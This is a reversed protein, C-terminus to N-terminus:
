KIGLASKTWLIAQGPETQVSVEFGKSILEAAVAVQEQSLQKGAQKFEVFVTKGESFISFDPWGVRITSKKDMRSHIFPLENLRLWAEFTHHVLKETKQGFV